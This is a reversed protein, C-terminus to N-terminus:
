AKGAPDSWSLLLFDLPIYENVEHLRISRQGNPYCIMLEEIYSSSVRLDNSWESMSYPIVIVLTLKIRRRRFHCQYLDKMGPQRSAALDVVV